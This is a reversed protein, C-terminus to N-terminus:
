LGVNLNFGVPQPRDSALRSGENVSVTRAFTSVAFWALENISRLPHDPIFILDGQQLMFDAATGNLIARLDVVTADPESLSGRILVLQRLRAGPTPGGAAAVAQLLSLGNSFSVGQPRWVAGIVHVERAAAPPIHIFDRERLQIRGDQNGELLAARFDVPILEGDRLLFSRDLDPMGANGPTLSTPPLGGAAAIAEILTVPRDLPYVGPNRVMGLLTYTSSRAEHLVLSVAPDRRFRRLSSEMTRRAQEVTLGAVEVGGSLDFYLRGDPGVPMVQPGSDDEPMDISVLDGPGLRYPVEHEGSQISMSGNRFIVPKMAPAAPTSRIEAPQWIRYDDVFGAQPPTGCGSLLATTLILPLLSHKRLHSCFVMSKIAATKM